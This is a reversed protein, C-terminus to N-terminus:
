TGAMWGIWRMGSTRGRRQLTSPPPPTVCGWRAGGSHFRLEAEATSSNPPRPTRVLLVPVFQIRPRRSESPDCKTPQSCAHARSFRRHKNGKQKGHTRIETPSVASIM